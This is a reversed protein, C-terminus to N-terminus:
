STFEKLLTTLYKDEMNHISIVFNWQKCSIGGESVLPVLAVPLRHPLRSFSAATWGGGHFFEHQLQCM